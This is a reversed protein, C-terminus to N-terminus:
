EAWGRIRRCKTVFDQASKPKDLSVLSPSKNPESERLQFDELLTPGRPGVKLSNQNGAVPICQQTTLVANEVSSERLTQAHSSLPLLVTLATARVERM